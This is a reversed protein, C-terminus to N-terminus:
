GRLTIVSIKMFAEDGEFAVLNQLEESQEQKNSRTRKM